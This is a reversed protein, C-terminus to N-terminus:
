DAEIPATGTPAATKYHDLVAVCEAVCADCIYGSAGAVLREVEYARRHCFACRLAFSRQVWGSLRGM